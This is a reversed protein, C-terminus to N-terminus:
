IFKFIKTWINKKDEKNEKDIKEFFQYYGYGHFIEVDIYDDDYDFIYEDKKRVRM